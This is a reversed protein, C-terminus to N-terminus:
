VLVREKPKIRSRLTAVNRKLEDREHATGIVRNAMIVTGNIIVTQVDSAKTAYVLQSVVNYVPLQHMTDMAVIIIDAKKGAQLSGIQKDMHIARAGGITAMELAQYASLSTPNGTDVKQLLAATKMEAVIDQSNNSAAGDTGLGVMVGYKLMACVPAIGSSLKMNSVPAHVVGVQQQALLAIEHLTLHVCHAAILSDNLLGLENCYAVPRMGSRKLMHKTETKSEALHTLLPIHYETALMHAGQLTKKSCSYPAHPAVAPTILPNGQWQEIFSRARDLAQQPTKSDPTSGNVVTQGLIARMGMQSAARAAEEEFYYMDVFTTTGAAIMEYCALKTGWYVFDPTVHRREAPWICKELWDKLPLDDGLGRLLTMAAHTHGNIFGPMIVGGNANITKKAKYHKSLKTASGVAIITSGKIAVAGDEIIQKNDHMTIVTGNRIILDVFIKGAICPPTILAALALSVITIQKIPKV